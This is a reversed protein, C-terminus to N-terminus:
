KVEDRAKEGPEASGDNEHKKARDRTELEKAHRYLNYFGAM